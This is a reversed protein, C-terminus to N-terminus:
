AAGAKAPALREYLEDNDRVLWVTKSDKLAEPPEASHTSIDGMIALRMGYRAFKQIVEAAKSGLRFFDKSLRGVPIAICRADSSLAEQILESVTREGDLPAGQAVIEAVREGHLSYVIM